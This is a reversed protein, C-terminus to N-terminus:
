KVVYKRGQIEPPNKYKFSGCVIEDIEPALQYADWYGQVPSYRKSLIEEKSHGIIVGVIIGTM